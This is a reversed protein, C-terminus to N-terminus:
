QGARGPNKRPPMPSINAQYPLTIHPATAHSNNAKVRSATPWALPSEGETDDPTEHPIGPRESGCACSTPEPVYAIGFYGTDNGTNGGYGATGTNPTDNWTGLATPDGTAYHWNLAAYYEGGDDNPENTAVNWNRYAATSGDVWTFDAAHQFNNGGPGDDTGGFEPDNAEDNLGIWSPTQSLDPWGLRYFGPRRRQRGHCKPRRRRNHDSQHRCRAEAEDDTWTDQQLIDYVTGSDGTLVFYTDTNSGVDVNFPGSITSAGSRAVTIFVASCAAASCIVTKRPPM